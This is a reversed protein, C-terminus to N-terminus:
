GLGLLLVGRGDQGGGVVDNGYRRYEQWWGPGVVAARVLWRWGGCAGEEEDRARACSYQGGSDEGGQSLAAGVSGGDDRFDLTVEVLVWGVRRWSLRPVGLRESAGEGPPVGLWVLCSVLGLEIQVLARYM